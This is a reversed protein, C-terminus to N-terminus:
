GRGTLSLVSFRTQTSPSSRNDTWRRPQACRAEGGNRCKCVLTMEVKVKDAYEKIESDKNVLLTVQAALDRTLLWAASDVLAVERSVVRGVGKAAAIAKVISVTTKGESICDLGYQM